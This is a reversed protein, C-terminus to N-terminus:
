PPPKEMGLLLADTQACMGGAGGGHMEAAVAGQRDLLVIQKWYAFGGHEYWLFYKDGISGGRIFRNFPAPRTVVDGSNFFQGRDAIAGVHAKVYAKVPGPLRRLSNVSKSPHTLTCTFDPNDGPTADATSCGATLLATLALAAVRGIM